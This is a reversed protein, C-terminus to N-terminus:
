LRDGNAAQFVVVGAGEVWGPADSGDYHVEGFVSCNGLHSGTGSGTWTVLGPSVSYDSLFMQCRAKFKPEGRALRAPAGILCLLAAGFLFHRMVKSMTTTRRQM